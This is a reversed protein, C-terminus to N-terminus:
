PPAKGRNDKILTGDKVMEKHRELETIMVDTKPKLTRFFMDKCALEKSVLLPLSYYLSHLRKCLGQANKRTMTPNVHIYGDLWM